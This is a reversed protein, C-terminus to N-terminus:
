EELLWSRAEDMNDFVRANQGRNLSVTEFFKFDKLFKTTVLARKLQYLNVGSATFIEAVIEPMRFIGTVSLKLNAERYDTLIRKCKREKIIATFEALTERIERLTFDGYLRVELMYTDPNFISTYPM